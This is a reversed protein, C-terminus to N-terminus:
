LLSSFKPGLYVLGHCESDEDGKQPMLLKMLFQVAHVADQLLWSCGPIVRSGFSDRVSLADVADGYSIFYVLCLFVFVM